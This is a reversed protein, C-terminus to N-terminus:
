LTGVGLAALTLIIVLVPVLLIQPAPMIHYWAMLLLLVGFAIAFDVIAAGVAAFPIALRPFYIKTILRESGVVSNGANAIANAFFSWPLLATFVFLPYPVDRNHYTDAVVFFIVYLIFMMMAPQLVAWAIGLVAQKYRVKVDRWALFYLLDRYHWLEAFNILQWGTPPRIVTEAPEPTQMM